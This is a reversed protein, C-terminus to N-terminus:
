VGRGGPSQNNGVGASLQLGVGGVTLRSHHPASDRTSRGCRRQQPRELGGGMGVFLPEGKQGCQVGVARYVQQFETDHM